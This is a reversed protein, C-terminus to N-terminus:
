PAKVQKGVTSWFACEVAIAPRFAAEIWGGGGTGPRSIDNRQWGAEPALVGSATHVNYFMGTRVLVRQQRLVGYVAVYCGLLAIGLLLARLWGHERVEM